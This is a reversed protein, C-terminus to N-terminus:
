NGRVVWHENISYSWSCRLMEMWGCCSFGFPFWTQHGVRHQASSICLCLRGCVHLFNSALGTDECWWRTLAECSRCTFTAFLIDSLCKRAQFSCLILGFSASRYSPFHIIMPLLVSLAAVQRGLRWWSQDFGLTIGFWGRTVYSHICM